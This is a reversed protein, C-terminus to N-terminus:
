WCQAADGVPFNCGSGPAGQLIRTMKPEGHRSGEPTWAREAAALIDSIVDERGVFVPPPSGEGAAVFERLGMEDLAKAM